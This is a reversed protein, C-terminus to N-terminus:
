PMFTIEKYEVGYCDEIRQIVPVDPFSKGLEYNRLTDVSIGILEAAAKQSLKKNVRAAKLTLKTM